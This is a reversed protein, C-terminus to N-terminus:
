GILTGLAFVISFLMAIVLIGVLWPGGPWVASRVEIAREPMSM